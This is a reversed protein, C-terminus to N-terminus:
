MVPMTSGTVPLTSAIQLGGPRGVGATGAGTPNQPREPLPLAPRTACRASRRM